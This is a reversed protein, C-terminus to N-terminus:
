GREARRLRAVEELMRAGGYVLGRTLGALRVSVRVISRRESWLSSTPHPGSACSDTWAVERSELIRMQDIQLLIGPSHRAFRVDFASKFVFAGPPALVCTTMAIPEGGLDLRLFQLRGQRAAALITERFFGATGAQCALASGVKGKWGTAELRLFADSWAPAEAPDDLQRLELKGLVALRARDRKHENRRKARVNRRYYEEAPLSTHLLPRIERHVIACNRGLEAAAPVLGSHIPGDEVLGTLHLFGRAWPAADPAALAARWFRREEGCAILPAGLFHNPSSWNKVHTVRARGYRRAAQFLAAGVLRDGRRVELLRILGGHRLYKLSAAAFWAESFPNPEAADRALAKWERALGESVNEIVSIRVSPAGTPDARLAADDALAVGGSRQFADLM